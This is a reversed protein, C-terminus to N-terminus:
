LLRHFELFSFCFLIFGHTVGGWGLLMLSELHRPPHRIEAKREVDASGPCSFDPSHADSWSEFSSFPFQPPSLTARSVLSTVSATAHVCLAIFSPLVHPSGAPQVWKLPMLVRTVSQASTAQMGPEGMSVPPPLVWPWTGRGYSVMASAPNSGLTWVKWIWAM